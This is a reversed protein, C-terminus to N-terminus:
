SGWDITPGHDTWSLPAIHMRRATQDADWAHFVIRDQGDPGVVLSNHGPGILSGPISRLLRPATAAGEVFTGMPSEAVAYSVGYGPTRWAGGSYLCWYRGGRKVVAPGELTHWDHIGGYMSRAREYVQWDASARLVTRREGRLARMDVLRDVVLATGVRDGDLFDRAYYLYWTGDDDRFPHADITFPDDPTLVLGEDRFPGEPADATAVRLQHGKDGVGASYYLFFRGDHHAVEPAWYEEAWPVGLRELVRGVSTWTVLDDSRLVPVVRDGGVAADSAYAYYTDAVRLVFPDPMPDPHVPGPILPAGPGGPDAARGSSTV